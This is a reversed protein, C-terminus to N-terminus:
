DLGQYLSLTFVFLQNWYVFMCHRKGLISITVRVKSYASFICIAMFYNPIICIYGVLVTRLLLMLSGFCFLFFLCCVSWSSWREQLVARLVFAVCVFFLKVLNLVELCPLVLGKSRCKILIYSGLM